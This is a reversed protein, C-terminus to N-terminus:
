EVLTWTLEGPIDGPIQELAGAVGRTHEAWAIVATGVLDTFEGQDFYSGGCGDGEGACYIPTFSYHGVNSFDALLRPTSEIHGHLELYQTGVTDDRQGGITLVPATIESTGHTLLGYADWPAFTVIGNVRSDGLDDSPEGQSGNVLAGGNAYATYGGFSYGTMFYGDDPDVCGYFESNPDSSEVLLWDYTDQIDRPRRQYLETFSTTADYLTNGAHDPALVIWGHTALFEPLWFMEWSLSTNGHSHVMVPRPSDCAPSVDTYSEGETWWDTWGYYTQDGGVDGSPFWTSVYLTDGRSGTIESWDQGATWVGPGAYNGASPIAATDGGTDDGGKLPLIGLDTCALLPLALFTVLRNVSPRYWQWTTM